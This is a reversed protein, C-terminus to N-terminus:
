YIGNYCICLGVVTSSSSCRGENQVCSCPDGNVPTCNQALPECTIPPPVQQAPGGEQQVCIYVDTHALGGGTVPVACACGAIGGGGGTGGDCGGGSTEQVCTGGTCGGTGGDPLIYMPCGEAFWYCHDASDANCSSQSTLQSCPNPAPPNVVGCGGGSGADGTGGGGPGVCAGGNGPCETGGDPLVACPVGTAVWRCGDKADADCAQETTFLACADGSLEPQATTGTNQNSPKGVGCAALAVAACCLVSVRM